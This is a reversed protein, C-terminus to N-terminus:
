RASSQASPLLLRWTLAPGLHRRLLWGLALLLVVGHLVAVGQGFGTRGSAIWAQSLTILNFYVLFALVAFLHSTSRGARPNASALGIAALTLNFAGLLLGVRYALEALHVPKPDSLLRLTSLTKPQVSETAEPTVEGVVVRYERFQTVRREGTILDTELREGNELILLRETGQTILRGERASTITERNNETTAVFVNRGVTAGGSTGVNREVFFVRQGNASEQFQGPAIRAIDSRREFRERLDRLQQQSWPWVLLALLAIVGWVPWAFRFVPAAFRLLGVGSSLWIVMESSQYARSLVGVVAIFLSLTLVTPMYGLMLYGLLLLVDQPAVQGQAAEGLTRILVVTMVITMLVVLTAGFGRALEKRLSSDFLM